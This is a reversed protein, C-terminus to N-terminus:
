PFEICVFPRQPQPSPEMTNRPYQSWFHEWGALAEEYWRCENLEQSSFPNLGVEIRGDIDMGVYPADPHAETVIELRHDRLERSMQEAHSTADRADATADIAIIVAIVAVIFAVVAVVLSAVVIEMTRNSPTSSTSVVNM